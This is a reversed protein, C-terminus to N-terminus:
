QPPKFRVRIIMYTNVKTFSMFPFPTLDDDCVTFLPTKSPDASLVNCYRWSGILRRWRILELRTYADGYRQWSDFYGCDVFLVTDLSLDIGKRSVKNAYVEINLKVCLFHKEFAKILLKRSEFVDFILCLDCFKFARAVKSKFHCSKIFLVWWSKKFGYDVDKYITSM